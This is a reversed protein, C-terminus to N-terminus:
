HDLKNKIHLKEKLMEFFSYTPIFDIEINFGVEPELQTMEQEELVERMVDPDCM